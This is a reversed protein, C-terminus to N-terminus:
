VSEDAADYLSHLQFNVEADDEPTLVSQVVTQSQPQSPAASSQMQMLTPLLSALSPASAGNETSGNAGQMAQMLSMLQQPDM